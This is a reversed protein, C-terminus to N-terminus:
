QVTVNYTPPVVQFWTNGPKLPIANGSGDVLEMGNFKENVRWTADVAVGDRMVVAPGERGVIYTRVSKSGVSDEILDTLAHEVTMIVVNSATIQQGNNGDVFPTGGTGQFRAYKGSAPDYRWEVQYYGRNVYPITASTGSRGDPASDSFAFSRVTAPKDIGKNQIYTRLKPISSVARNQYDSSPVNPNLYYAADNCRWDIDELGAGYAFVQNPGVAGSSALVADYMQALQITTSRYSRLPGVQPADGALFFATFRTTNLNDMLEEFVLDAGSLGYYAKIAPENGYRVALIRHQLLAPDVAQGTLPNINGSIAPRAPPVERVPRNIRLGCLGFYKGVPPTDFSPEVNGIAVLGSAGPAANAAPADARNEATLEPAEVVALADVEGSLELFRATVWAEDGNVCCVLYWSGDENKGRVDLSDGIYIQGIKGYNTGPGKRANVGDTNSQAVVKPAETPTPTPTPTETPSPIPSPTDTPLPTPTDTAPVPTDTPAQAVEVKPTKTPTPTAEPERDRCGALVLMLLLPIFLFATKFIQKRM